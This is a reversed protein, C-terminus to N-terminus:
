DANSTFLARTFLTLYLGSTGHLITWANLQRHTKPMMWYPLANAPAANASSPAIGPKFLCDSSHSLQHEM